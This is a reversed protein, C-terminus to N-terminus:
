WVMTDSGEGAAEEQMLGYVDGGGTGADSAMKPNNLLSMGEDLMAGIAAAPRAIPTVAARMVTPAVSISKLADAYM